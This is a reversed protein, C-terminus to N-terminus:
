WLCYYRQTTANYYRLDISAYNSKNNTIYENANRPLKYQAASTLLADYDENAAALIRLSVQSCNNTYLNYKESYNKMHPIAKTFDGSLYHMIEYDGSYQNSGNIESLSSADGNFSVCWSYPEISLTFLCMIRAAIGEKGGKTGWYYHWWTGEDDQAMVGIHGLTDEDFLVIADTGSYDAHIIPSNLCYAFM